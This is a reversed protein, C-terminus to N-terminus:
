ARRCATIWIDTYLINRFRNFLYLYINCVKKSEPTLTAFVFNRRSSTAASKGKPEDDNVALPAALAALRALAGRGRNLISGQYSQQFNYYLILLNLNIEPLVTFYM